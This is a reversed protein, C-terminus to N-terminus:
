IVAADAARRLVAQRRLQHHDQVAIERRTPRRPMISIRQLHSCTTISYIANCVAITFRQIGGLLAEVAEFEFRASSSCRSHVGADAPKGITLEHRIM